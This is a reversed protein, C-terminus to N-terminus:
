KDLAQIFIDNTDFLKRYFQERTFIIFLNNKVNLINGFYKKLQENQKNFENRIFFYEQTDEQKKDLIRRNIELKIEIIKKFMNQAIKYKEKLKNIENEDIRINQSLMKYYISNLELNVIKNRLESFKLQYYALNECLDSPPLEYFQSMLGKVDVFPNFVINYSIFYDSSINENEREKIKKDDITIENDSIIDEVKKIINILFKNNQFKSFDFNLDILVLFTCIFWISCSPGFQIKEKPYKFLLTSMEIRFIPDYKKLGEYHYSSMDFIINKRLLESKDNKYFYFILLSAHQNCLLPEFYIIGEKKDFNEKKTRSNFDDPFYPELIQIKETNKEQIAYCFGLLEILSHPFPFEFERKKGFKNKIINLIIDFCRLQSDYFKKDMNDKTDGTKELITFKRSSKIVLTFYPNEDILEIPNSKYFRFGIRNDPIRNNPPFIFSIQPSICAFIKQKENLFVEDYGLSKNSQFKRIGDTIKLEPDKYNNRLNKTGEFYKQYLPPTINDEEKPFEKYFDKFFDDLM